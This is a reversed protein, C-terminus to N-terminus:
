SLNKSQIKLNIQKLFIVEVILDACFLYMKSLDAKKRKKYLELSGINYM